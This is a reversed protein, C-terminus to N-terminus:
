GWLIFSPSSQPPIKLFPLPSHWTKRNPFCPRYNANTVQSKAWASVMPYPCSASVMTCLCYLGPPPSPRFNRGFDWFLLHTVSLGVLQGFIHSITPCVYCAFTQLLQNVSRKSRRLLWRGRTGTLSQWQATKTLNLPKEHNQHRKRDVRNGKNM